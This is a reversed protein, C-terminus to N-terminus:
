LWMLPTDVQALPNLPEGRPTQMFTPLKELYQLLVTVSTQSSRKCMKTNNRATFSNNCDTCMLQRLQQLFFLELGTTKKQSATYKSCMFNATKCINTKNIRGDRPNHSLDRKNTHLCSSGVSKKLITHIMPHIDNEVPLVHYAKAISESCLGKLAKVSDTPRCSPYGAQLIWCGAITRSRPRLRVRLLKQVLTGSSCM